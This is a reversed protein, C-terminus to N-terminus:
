RPLRKCFKWAQNDRFRGEKGKTPTLQQYISTATKHTSASDDNLMIKTPTMPVPHETPDLQDLFIIPTEILHERNIVEFGDKGKIPTLQQYTIARTHTSVSDDHLMIKTPTMPMPHEPPDLQDLFTIPTEVDTQKGLSEGVAEMPTMPSPQDFNHGNCVM